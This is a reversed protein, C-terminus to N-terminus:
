LPVPSTFAAALKVQRVSYIDLAATLIIAARTEMQKGPMSPKAM